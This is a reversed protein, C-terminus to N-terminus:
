SNRLVNDNRSTMFRIHNMVVFCVVYSILTKLSLNKVIIFFHTMKLLVVCPKKNDEDKLFRLAEEGNVSHALSNTVKLEKLARKVTMADVQDDEVLLIPKSNRM